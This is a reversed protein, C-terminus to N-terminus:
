TFTKIEILAVQDRKANINKLMWKRKDKNDNQTNM